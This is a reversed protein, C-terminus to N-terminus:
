QWRGVSFELQIMGPDGSSSDPEPETLGVLLADAYTRPKGIVVMDPDTPTVSVAARFRGVRNTLSDIVPQDRVFDYARTIVINSAQAPGALTDPQTSGGDWVKTTDATIEAGTKTQWNGSIGAVKVLFQRRASKAV